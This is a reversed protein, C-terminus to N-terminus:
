SNGKYTLSTFSTARSSANRRRNASTRWTICTLEHASCLMAKKKTFKVIREKATTHTPREANCAAYAVHTLLTLLM